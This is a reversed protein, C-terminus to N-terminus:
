FSCRFFGVCGCNESYVVAAAQVSKGRRINCLKGMTKVALFQPAFRVSFCVSTGFSNNGDREEARWLLQQNHTVVRVCLCHEIGSGELQKQQLVCLLAVM